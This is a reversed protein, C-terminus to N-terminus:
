ARALLTPLWAAPDDGTEPLLEDLLRVTRERGSLITLVDREGTLNLRAVV